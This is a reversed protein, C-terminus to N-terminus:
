QGDSRKEVKTTQSSFKSFPPKPVIVQQQLQQQGTDEDEKDVLISSDNKRVTPFDIPEEDAPHEAPDEAPDEALDETPDEDPDDDLVEDLDEEAAREVAHDYNSDSGNSAVFISTMGPDAGWINFYRFEWEHSDEAVLDPLGDGHGIAKNFPVSTAFGDTM